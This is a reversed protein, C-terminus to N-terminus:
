EGMSEAALPVCWPASSVRWIATPSVPCRSGRWRTEPGTGRVVPRFFAPYEPATEPGAEASPLAPLRQTSPEKRQAAARHHGGRPGELSPCHCFFVWTAPAETLSFVWMGGVGRELTQSHSGSTHCTPWHDWSKPWLSVRSRERLSTVSSNVLRNVPLERYM